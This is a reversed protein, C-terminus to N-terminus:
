SYNWKLPWDHATLYLKLFPINMDFFSFILMITEKKWSFGAAKFGLLEVIGRQARNAKPRRPTLREFTVGESAMKYRKYLEPSEEQFQAENEYEFTKKVKVGDKDKVRAQVKLSGDNYINVKFLSSNYLLAFYTWNDISWIAKPCLDIFTIVELFLLYYIWDSNYPCCFFIM